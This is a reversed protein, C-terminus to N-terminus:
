LDQRDAATTDNSVNDRALDNDLASYSESGSKETYPKCHYVKMDSSRNGSVIPSAKKNGSKAKSQLEPVASNSVQRSQRQDTGRNNEQEQRRMDSKAM